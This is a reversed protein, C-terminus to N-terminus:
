RTKKVEENSWIIYQENQWDGNYGGYSGFNIGKLLENSKDSNEKIEISLDNLNMGVNIKKIPNNKNLENYREAFAKVAEKYKIYILKKIKEDSISNNIEVNNFVGYGQKRNIYLTSKAIIKGDKNRIVLNQCEPHLISAKMIGIGMGEIHACCSCYKGLVFNRPDNKSLFEYSFESNAIKNLNMLTSSTDGIM